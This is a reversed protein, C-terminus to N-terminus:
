ELPEGISVTTPEETAPPDTPTPETPTEVPAQTPAETAPAQTPAETVDTASETPKETKDAPNKYEGDATRLYVNDMTDDFAVVMSGTGGYLSVKYLMVQRKGVYDSGTRVAGNVNEAGVQEAALAKAKAIYQNDTYPSVLSLGIYYTGNFSIVEKYSKGGKEDMYINGSDDVAFVAKCGEIKYITLLTGGVTINGSTKATGKVGLLAAAAAAVNMADLTDKESEDEGIKRLSGGFWEYIHRETEGGLDVTATISKKSKDFAPDVLASLEANYTMSAGDPNWLWCFYQRGVSDEARLLGIDTFGDFDMDTMLLVGQADLLEADIAQPISLQLLEEFPIDSATDKLLIYFVKDKCGFTANFENFNDVQAIQEAGDPLAASLDETVSADEVIEGLTDEDEKEGCATLMLLMAALLILVYKKM